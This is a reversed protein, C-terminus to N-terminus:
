CRAACRAAVEAAELDVSGYRHFFSQAAAADADVPAAHPPTEAEAYIM